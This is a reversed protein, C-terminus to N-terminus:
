APNPIDVFQHRLEFRAALHEGLAQAGFRETAHHGAAYFHMGHERAVHVTQESVEGTLYADLGLRAADEIYGQAAGTCWGITVVRDAQGVVHLPARGLVQDLRAAFEEGSMPDQLVGASAIGDASGGGFGRDRRLGLLRGLAANNGLEAHADLPLHYAYLNIDHALLLKLRRQKMGVVCPDEGNWFYGHHVLVADAGLAAAQELLAASATVGTVLMGVRRRGEVQLGNPAYDRFSAVELLEALYQTLEATAIM